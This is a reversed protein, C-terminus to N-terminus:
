FSFCEGARSSTLSSFCAFSSKFSSSYLHLASLVGRRREEVHMGKEKEEDKEGEGSEDDEAKGEERRGGNRKM